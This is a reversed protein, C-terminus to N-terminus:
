HLGERPLTGNVFGVKQLKCCMRESILANAVFRLQVKHHLRKSILANDDLPYSCGRICGREASQAMM